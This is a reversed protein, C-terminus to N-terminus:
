RGRVAKLAMIGKVLLSILYVSIIVAVIGIVVVAIIQLVAVVKDWWSAALASKLADANHEKIYAPDVNQRGYLAPPLPNGGLEYMDYEGTAPNYIGRSPVISKHDRAWSFFFESGDDFDNVCSHVQIGNHDVLTAKGGIVTATM